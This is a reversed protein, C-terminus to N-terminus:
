SNEKIKNYLQNCPHTLASLTLQCGLLEPREMLLGLVERGKEKWPDKLLPCHRSPPQTTSDPQRPLVLPLSSQHSSRAESRPPILRFQQGPRLVIPTGCPEEWGWSWGPKKRTNTLITQLFLVSQIFIYIYRYVCLCYIYLHIIYSLYYIYLM